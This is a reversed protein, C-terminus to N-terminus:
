LISFNKNKHHYSLPTQQEYKKLVIMPMNELKTENDLEIEGIYVSDYDKTWNGDYDTIRMTLYEVNKDLQCDQIREKKIESNDISDTLLNEVYKTKGTFLAFRIINEGHKRFANEFNTFYFYPGLIGNNYDISEGFNYTFIAMSKNKNVYAVIPLEYTINNNDILYCLETNLTFLTTISTNIKINCVSKHNVIEDIIPMWLLKSFYADDIKVKCKTIDFFLYLDRKFEFYGIFEMLDNYEEYNQLCLLGFLNVKAYNILDDCSIEYNIIITPFVLSDDYTKTLLFRQFPFLGSRNIDYACINVNNYASIFNSFSDNLIQEGKYKYVKETNFVSDETNEM